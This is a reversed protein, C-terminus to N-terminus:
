LDDASADRSVRNRACRQALMRNGALYSRSLLTLVSLLLCIV